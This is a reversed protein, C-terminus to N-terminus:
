KEETNHVSKLIEKIREKSEGERKFSVTEGRGQAMYRVGGKFCFEVGM